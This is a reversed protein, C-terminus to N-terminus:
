ANTNKKKKGVFDTINSDTKVKSRLGRAAPPVCTDM